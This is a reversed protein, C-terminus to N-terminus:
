KITKDYSHQRQLYFIIPQYLARSHVYHHVVKKAEQVIYEKM